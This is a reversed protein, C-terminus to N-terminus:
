KGEYMSKWVAHLAFIIAVFLIGGVTGKSDVIGKRADTILEIVWFVISLGMILGFSSKKQPKQTARYTPVSKKRDIEEIEDDIDAVMMGMELWDIHGDGDVDYFDKDGCFIAWDDFNDKHM